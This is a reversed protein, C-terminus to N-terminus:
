LLKVRLNFTLEGTENNATHIAVAHLLAAAMRPHEISELLTENVDKHARLHDGFAEIKGIHGEHTHYVGVHSQVNRIKTRRFPCKLKQRLDGPARATSWLAAPHQNLREIWLVWAYGARGGM